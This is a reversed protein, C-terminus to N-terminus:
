APLRHDRHAAPEAARGPRPGGPRLREGPRLARCTGTRRVAAPGHRLAAHDPAEAHGPQGAAQDGRVGPVRRDRRRPGRLAPHPAQPPVEPRRDEGLLLAATPHRLLSEVRRLRRGPQARGPGDARGARGQDRGGGRGARPIEARVPQVRAAQQGRATTRGGRAEKTTRHRRGAGCVSAANHSLVGLIALCDPSFAQHGRPPCSACGVRARPRLRGVFWAPRTGPLRCVVQARSAGSASLCGRGASSRLGAPSSGPPLRSGPIHGSDPPRRAPPRGSCRPRGPGTPPTM